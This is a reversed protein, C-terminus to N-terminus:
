NTDDVGEGAAEERAKEDVPSEWKGQLDQLIQGYGVPRVDKYWVGEYRVWQDRISVTREHRSLIPHQLRTTMTVDAVAEDGDIEIDGLEYALTHLTGPSPVIRQLPHAHKLIGEYDRDVRAQWYAEMRSRLLREEGRIGLSDLWAMGDLATFAVGGALVVLVLGILGKRV